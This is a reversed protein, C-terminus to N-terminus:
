ISLASEAPSVNAVKYFSALIPLPGDSYVLASVLSDLGITLIPWGGAAIPYLGVLM